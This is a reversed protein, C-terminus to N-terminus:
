MATCRDGGGIELVKDDEPVLLRGWEVSIGWAKRGAGPLRREIVRCIGPVEYIHSKCVCVFIIHNWKPPTSSISLYYIHM